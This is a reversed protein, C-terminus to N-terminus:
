THRAGSTAPGSPAEVYSSSHQVMIQFSSFVDGQWHGDLVVPMGVRFLQPPSGTSVVDVDVNKATIMFHLTTGVEHVGPLVKGQIRFDSTGLQARQAVAQNATLYYNLANALGRALLFGLAGLIVIGAVLKQRRSALSRRRRPGTLTVPGAGGYGSHTGDHGTGNVASRQLDAPVPGTRTSLDV